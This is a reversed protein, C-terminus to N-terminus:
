LKLKNVAERMENIYDHHDYGAGVSSMDSRQHGLYMEGLVPKLGQANWQTAFTRRLSHFDKRHADKILGHEILPNKINRMFGQYCASTITKLTNFHPTFVRKDGSEQAERVYTIFHEDGALEPHLPITRASQPTKLEQDPRKDTFIWTGTELNIDQGHMLAAEKVRCGTFLCTKVMAASLRSRWDKTDIILEDTRKRISIIENLTYPIKKTETEYQTTNIKPLKINACPNLPLYGDRHCYRAIMGLTIFASRLSQSSLGRNIEYDKYALLREKTFVKDLRDGETATVAKLFMDLRYKHTEVTSPKRQGSRIIENFCELVTPINKQASSPQTREPPHAPEPKDVTIQVDELEHDIKQTCADVVLILAKIAATLEGQVASESADLQITSGDPLFGETANLAANIESPPPIKNDALYSNLVNEMRPFFCTGFVELDSRSGTHVLEDTFEDLRITGVLKVTDSVSLAGFRIKWEDALKLAERKAEGLDSTGLSKQVHTGTPLESHGRLDKPIAIRFHYTNGRKLVYPIKATM